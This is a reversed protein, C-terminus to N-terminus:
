LDERAEGCDLLEDLVEGHLIQALGVQEKALRGDQLRACLKAAEIRRRKLEARANGHRLQVRGNLLLLLALLARM